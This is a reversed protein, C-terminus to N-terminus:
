ASEARESRHWLRLLPGTDGYVPDASPFAVKALRDDASPREGPRGYNMDYRQGKPYGGVVAFDSSAAVRRHSVGAPIVLVEGRSLAVVLGGPGGLEVRASGAFCGLVEHATSHYHRYPYVGDRWQSPWDNKELVREIALGPDAVQELEFARRYVLAPWSSNPFAGDDHLWFTEVKPDPIVVGGQSM